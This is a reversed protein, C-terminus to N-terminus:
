LLTIVNVIITIIKIIFLFFALTMKETIQLKIRTHIVCPSMDQVLISVENNHTIITIIIIILVVKVVAIVM